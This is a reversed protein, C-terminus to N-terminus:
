PIAQSGMYIIIGKIFKEKMEEQVYKLGKFDQATVTASAKVELAVIDGEENELIIDVEVGSSTRFHFMKVRMQSWTAQKRLEGVVFNELMGGMPITHAVM